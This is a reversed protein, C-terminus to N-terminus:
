YKNNKTVTNTAFKIIIYIIALIFGRIFIGKTNSMNPLYKDLFVSTKPHVLAVFVIFLLVPVVIFETINNDKKPVDIYKAPHPRRMRKSIKQMPMHTNINDNKKPVSNQQTMNEIVNTNHQQTIQQLQKNIHQNTKIQAIDINPTPQKTEINPETLEIEDNANNNNKSQYPINNLQQQYFQNQQTMSQNNYPIQQPIQQPIYQPIQPQNKNIPTGQFNQMQHQLLNNNSAVENLINNQKDMQTYYNNNM